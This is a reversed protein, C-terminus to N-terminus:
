QGAKWELIGGSFQPQLRVEIRLATSEVPKFQISNFKNAETGYARDTQVPKWHNGERYLLQWSAPVRCAGGGTDDFWYVSTSSITRPKEFEQQVWETTGRHNWWTFRPISKDSSSSPEKGDILAEITDGDFCHSASVPLPKPAVWEHAASGEGIVPFSTVRLRAAGMPILIVQEPPAESKVPSAQLKGIMGQSDQKWAAIRKAKAHLEIPAASQAFPQGALSGRKHRVEFSKAPDQQDFILGYNWATEPLVEYEPWNGPRGYRSWKEGIKLSFALPGYNVSAADNNKPWRKVSIKMPLHLTVKDGNRWERDVAVYTLPKLGAGASKGNVEVSAGECWGPIRLYLPFQGPRATKIRFAVSENFPYETEESITVQTGSGVRATVESASYLSACLGNDPTAM